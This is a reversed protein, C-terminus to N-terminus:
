GAVFGIRPKRKRPPQNIRRLQKTVTNSLANIDDIVVSLVSSHTKQTEEIREVKRALHKHSAIMERLKVFARIIVINMQVARESKLVSSLMAVGHETFAYPMYRRGGRGGIKSTEIQLRLSEAEEKSLQFMFDAPFRNLNRRVALNLSKTAVRYIEALDEDLMVKQGRM